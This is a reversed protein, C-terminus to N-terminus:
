KCWYTKGCVTNRHASDFVNLEGLCHDAQKARNNVQMNKVASGSIEGEEVSAWIQMKRKFTAYALTRDTGVPNSNLTIFSYTIQAKESKRIEMAFWASQGSLWCQRVAYQSRTTGGRSLANNIAGKANM